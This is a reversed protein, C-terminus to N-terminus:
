NVQRGLWPNDALTEFILVPKLELIKSLGINTPNTNMTWKCREPSGLSKNQCSNSSLNDRM